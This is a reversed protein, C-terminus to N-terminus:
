SLIIQDSKRKRWKILEYWSVSLVGMVVSISIQYLDPSEFEFFQTVPKIYLMLITIGLTISVILPVLNNKYKITFIFSHYFSRNIFTLMINATILATFVMARTVQENFGSNVAIQYTVLVGLTIIMGQIVSTLLEDRNFFKTTFERPKQFLTDKEM